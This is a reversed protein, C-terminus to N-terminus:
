VRPSGYTGRSREFIAQIKDLLVRDQQRRASEGRGRWAYYGSRKVGYLACLRKLSFWARQGDLFEVIETKTRFLVPHSKKFTMSQRSYRTNVSSPRCPRSSARRDCHFTGVRYGARSWETGSKRGGARSCSRISTSPM